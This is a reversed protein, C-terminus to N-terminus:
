PAESGGEPAMPCGVCDEPFRPARGAAEGLPCGLRSAGGELFTQLLHAAAVYIPHRAADRLGRGFGPAWRGLHETFFKRAADAAVAAEDAAGRARAFAEKLCLYGLFGAEVALHDPPEETEPRFAFAEYFARIDALIHGPDQRGRYAVERPSVAGGPGLLALYRGEDAGDKAAEVAATADPDSLERGLAEVEHRWGERPRELLLGILRWAATQRLLERVGLEAAVSNM